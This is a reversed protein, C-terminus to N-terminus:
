SRESHHAQRVMPSSVFVGRRAESLLIIFVTALLGLPWLVLTLAVFLLTYALIRKVSIPQKKDPRPWIKVLVALIFLGAIVAFTGYLNRFTSLPVAWLSLNAEGAPRAFDLRVAGQPLTVPLSYVSRATYPQLDGLVTRPVGQPSGPRDSQFTGGLVIGETEATETAPRPGAVRAQGAPPQASSRQQRGSLPRGIKSVDRGAEKIGQGQPQAEPLFGLSQQQQGKFHRRLRNDTLEELQGRLQAQKQDIQAKARGRLRGLEEDMEEGKDKLGAILEGAMTGGVVVPKDKPAQDLAVQRDAKQELLKAQQESVELEQRLRTIQQEESKSLFDPKELLAQNRVIESVGPNSADANLFVNLDNRAQENQRADFATNSILLADQQRRQGSLKTQLREYDDQGVQSRSSDLYSQVQQIEKGLKENFVDWNRKAVQQKRVSLDAVDRYTRELRRLQELRAEIGFSLMEVTGVVPSMNGGPRIYRYGSPLRLSWTTQMIPIGVISINPPKLRTIGKLAPVLPEAGDDAFYLSIDYPLGGPSTKVLPILVEADTFNGPMVPKVPQGAVSASWLRLGYPVEIRLFQESRNQLAVRAEYRCRGSRDIVTTLELLDVVAQIRVATKAPKFGLSLSWDDEFSEFVYQLSERMERPM